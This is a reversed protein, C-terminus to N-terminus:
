RSTATSVVAPTITEQLFPPDDVPDPVRQAVFTASDLAGDTDSVTVTITVNTGPGGEALLTIVADTANSYMMANTIVVPTLPLSSDNTPVLSINTLVDFGRVLQGCITHNFDLYRPSSVTIFFQSGDTDKGSNAMALQGIGTFVGQPHFEDDFRFEPGGGDAATGGQIM